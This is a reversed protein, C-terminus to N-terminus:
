LTLCVANTAAGMRDWGAGSRSETGVAALSLQYLVMQYVMKYNQIKHQDKSIAVTCIHYSVIQFQYMIGVQVHLALEAALAKGDAKAASLEASLAEAQAKGSAKAASLEASLAEARAQGEGKVADLEAALAEAQAKGEARVTSLEAALSEAQATSETVAARLGEAEQRAAVLQAAAKEADQLKLFSPLPLLVLYCM